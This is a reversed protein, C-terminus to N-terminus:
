KSKQIRTVTFQGNIREPMFKVKDGIKVAETAKGAGLQKQLVAQSIYYRYRAGRKNAHPPSMRNGGNDL